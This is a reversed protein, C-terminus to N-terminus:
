RRLPSSRFLRPLMSAKMIVFEKGDADLAPLLFAGKNLKKLLSQEDGGDAFFMLLCDQVKNTFLFATSASPEIGITETCLERLKAPGLRMNIPKLYVVVRTASTPLFSQLV